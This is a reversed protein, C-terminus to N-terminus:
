GELEKKIRRRRDDDSLGHLEDFVSVIIDAATSPTLKRESVQQTNDAKNSM